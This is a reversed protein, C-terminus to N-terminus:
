INGTFYDDIPHWEIEIDDDVEVQEDGDHTIEFLAMNGAHRQETKNTVTDTFTIVRSWSNREEVNIVELKHGSKDDYVFDGVKLASGCVLECPNGDATQHIFSEDMPKEGYFSDYNYIIDNLQKALDEDIEDSYNDLFDEIYDAIADRYDIDEGSDFRDFLADDGLVNYLIKKVRDIDDLTIEKAFLKKIIDVKKQSDPISWTGEILKSMKNEENNKNTAKVVKYLDCDDLYSDRTYITGFSLPYKFQYGDEGLYFSDEDPSFVMYILYSEIEKDDIFQGGQGFEVYNDLTGIEDIFDDMKYYYGQDYAAEILDWHIVDMGDGIMYRDINKDYLIRYLKPKNVLLDRIQYPSDTIFANSALRQLSETLKENVDDKDDDEDLWPDEIENIKILKGFKKILETDQINDRALITYDEFVYGYCYGDDGLMNGDIDQGKSIVVFDTDRFQSHISMRNHDPFWGGDVALNLIQSHIYNRAEGIYYNGDYRSSDVVRFGKWPTRNMFDKLERVTDAVFLNDYDFSDEEVTMHSLKESLNEYFRGSSYFRRISKIIDEPFIPAFDNMKFKKAITSDTVFVLVDTKNSDYGWNLWEEFAWWQKNTVENPLVGYFRRDVAKTGCNIRAWGLKYTLETLLHAFERELRWDQDVIEAVTDTDYKLDSMLCWAFCECISQHTLEEVDVGNTDLTEQVSVFKGNPLIFMPSETDLDSRQKINLFAILQETSISNFTSHLENVFDVYANTEDILTGELLTGSSMFRKIRNMIYAVADEGDKRLSKLDYVKEVFDNARSCIQLHGYCYKDEANTLWDELAYFQKSTVSKPLEIYNEYDDIDCCRICNFDQVLFDKYSDTLGRDFLEIYFDEHTNNRYVTGDPFIFVSHNIESNNNYGVSNFLEQVEKITPIKDETDEMLKTSTTPHENAVSKIQEPKFAVYSTSGSDEFSNYYEIGDFGKSLFLNRMIVNPEADRPISSWDDYKSAFRKVVDKIIEVSKTDSFERPIYTEGLVGDNIFEVLGDYSTGFLWVVAISVGDFSEYDFDCVFPNTINLYYKGVLWSKEETWSHTKFERRDVASKYSGFHFGIDGQAFSDFSNYTGHHVVMLNGKSDRVKSKSFYKAQEQTLNDGLNNMQPSIPNFLDQVEEISSSTSHINEDMKKSNTPTKNTILKIQNPNFVVYEDAIGQGTDGSKILVGDYGEDEAASIENFRTWGVGIDGGNLIKLKKINLYASILTPISKPTYTKEFEARLGSNDTHLFTLYEDNISEIKDEVDKPIDNLDFKNKLYQDVGRWTAFKIITEKDYETLGQIYPTLLDSTRNEFDAYKADRWKLFDITDDDGSIQSFRRAVNVNPTFWFGLDAGIQMGKKVHEFSSFKTNTGHYCVLLRGKSDRVKSHAFYRSQEPTLQNGLSDIEVGENLKRIKM